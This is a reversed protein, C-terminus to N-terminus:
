WFSHFPFLLDTQLLRFFGSEFHTSKCFLSSICGVSSAYVAPSFHNKSTKKVFVHSLKSGTHVTNETEGSHYFSYATILPHCEEGSTQFAISLDVSPEAAEGPALISANLGSDGERVLTSGLSLVYGFLLFLPLLFLGSSRKM